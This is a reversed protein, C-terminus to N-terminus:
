EGWMLKRVTGTTKQTERLAMRQPKTAEKYRKWHPNSARKFKKWLPDIAKRYIAYHHGVAKDYAALAKAELAQAKRLPELAAKQKKTM